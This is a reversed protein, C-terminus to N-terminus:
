NAMETDLIGNPNHENFRRIVHCECECYYMTCEGCKDYNQCEISETM